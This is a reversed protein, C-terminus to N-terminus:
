KLRAALEDVVVGQRSIEAVAALWGAPDHGSIHASRALQNINAMAGAIEARIGTIEAHLARRIMTPPKGEVTDNIWRPLVIMYDTVASFLGGIM